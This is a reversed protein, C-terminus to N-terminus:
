CWPEADNNLEILGSHLQVMDPPEKPLQDIGMVRLFRAISPCYKVRYPTLLIKRCCSDFDTHYGFNAILLGLARTAFDNFDQDPSEPFALSAYLERRPRSPGGTNIQYGLFKVEQINDAVQTKNINIKMGFKSAHPQLQFINVQQDTAVLSDDGFVLHDHVSIGQKRVCYQTVIWNVISNILQTFYSGSAVGKAKRYREGNCMRIPTYIFYAVIKKWALYLKEYKTLDINDLLIDFAIKILWVPVTKDFQSYDSSLFNKYKAMRNYIKFCGGRAVEYGYALPTASSKYADILPIAFCAEMFTVSAPYGWVARVKKKGGPVLHPRVYAACDPLHVKKGKKVLHWLRRVSQFAPPNSAVEKKTKFGLGKWPLGPSSRWNELRCSTIDNLHIPRVNSSLRFKCFCDKIVERLLPDDFKPASPGYYLRLDKRIDAVTVPSRVLGGAEQIAWSPCYDSKTCTFHKQRFPSGSGIYAM